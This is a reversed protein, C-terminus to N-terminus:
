QQKCEPPVDKKGTVKGRSGASKGSKKDSSKSKSPTDGEEDEDDEEDLDDEDEDFEDFDEEDMEDDFEDEDDIGEGTFYIIARPIVSHRLTEGIDFDSVLLERTDEDADDLSDTPPSFFNFFSDRKEVKEITKVQNDSKHKMKKVVKAETVNKEPSKWDITCGVTKNVVLGENQLPETADVKDSYYYEKTLVKNTFFENETFEFEIRFGRPEKLLVYRLDVLHNILPEDHEQMMDSLMDLNHFIMPWFHPIGKEKADTPPPFSPDIMEFKCEEETPVYEGSVIQARKKDFEALEDQQEVQLDHIKQHHVIEARIRNLQLQKLAHVLKNNIVDLDVTDPLSENKALDAEM